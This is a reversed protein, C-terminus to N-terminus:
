CLTIISGNYFQLFCRKNEFEYRLQVVIGFCHNAYSERYVYFYDRIKKSTVTNEYDLALKKYKTGSRFIRM